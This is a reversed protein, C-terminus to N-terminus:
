ETEQTGDTVEGGETEGGTTEDGTTEDGETTEKITIDVRDSIYEIVKEYLVGERIATEGIAEIVQEATYDKGAAKYYDIYEQVMANVDDDSVSINTKKAIAHYILTQAVAQKAQKEVEAEWDGNEDLGLYWRAFVELKTFGYGYYYNYYAMSDDLDQLYANYFYEVESEPYKLIEAGAYLKEWIQQEISQNKASDFEAQLLKRIYERHEAVADDGEPEFKLTEKIFTENYEPITYQVIYSVTVYFTVDKGALSSEGYDEPFQLDLKLQNQMTDAPIKGILEDEFGDIFSGSGISLAYPSEDDMNSGGEFEEMEGSEENLMVGRYFIYATDGRKIQQDYVKTSGNTQTKKQFRLLEIYDDVESDGVVYEGDLEVTINEYVSSDINVYEDINEIAFYDFRTETPTTTEAPTQPTEENKCSAFAFAACLAIVVIATAKLFKM